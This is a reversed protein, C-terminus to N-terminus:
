RRRARSARSRRGDLSRGTWHQLKRSLDNVLTKAAGPELAIELKGDECRVLRVDRELALKMQMDRKDGALAVLEDFTGIALVPAGEPSDSPQAVM